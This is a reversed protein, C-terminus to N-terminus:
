VIANMKFIRLIEDDNLDVNQLLVDYDYAKKISLSNIKNVDSDSVGIHDVSSREKVRQLCIDIPVEIKVLLVRIGKNKICQVMQWFEDAVGTTEIIISDNEAFLKTLKEGIIRFGEIIYDADFYSRDKRIKIFEPEVRFFLINSSKEILSGIYTKGSGKPGLLIILSKM